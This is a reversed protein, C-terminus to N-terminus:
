QPKQGPRRQPRERSEGAKESREQGLWGIPRPRGRTSEQAAEEDGWEMFLGEAGESNTLRASAIM